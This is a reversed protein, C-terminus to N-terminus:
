EEVFMYQAEITHIHQSSPICSEILWVRKGEIENTQLRLTGSLTQHCYPVMPSRQKFRKLPEVTGKPCLMTAFNLAVCTGHVAM